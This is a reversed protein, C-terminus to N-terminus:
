QRRNRRIGSHLLHTTRICSTFTLYYSCQTCQLGKHTPCYLRGFHPESKGHSYIIYINIRLMNNHSSDNICIEYDFLILLTRYHKKKSLALRKKISGFYQLTFQKSDFQEIPESRTQQALSVLCISSYIQRSAASTRM